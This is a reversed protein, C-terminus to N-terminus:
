HGINFLTPGFWSTKSGDLCVSRVYFHYDTNQFMGLVTPTGFNGFTYITGLNVSQGPTVYTFEFNTEGNKNWQFNAGVAQGLGNREITYTVNSPPLCMHQNAISYYTYPGAWESNGLTGNCSSRVYFDYYTNAALAAGTYVTGLTIATTGSGLTFNKPGYQVQFSFSNTSSKVQWDFGMGEAYPSFGLNTPRDCYANLTVSKPASWDSKASASCAARPYILYTQGAILGISDLPFSVSTSNVVYTSGSGPGGGSAANAIAIEYFLPSGSGTFSLKLGDLQQSANFNAVSACGDGPNTDSKKCSILFLLVAMALVNMTNKM